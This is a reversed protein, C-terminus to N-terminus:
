QANGTLTIELEIDDSLFADKIFHAWAVDYKQRDFTLKGTAKVTVDANETIVIDKITEANTKGRITLDANATNGSAGTITLTATPHNAADFFDPTSLHGILHAKTGQESGEPAYNEDTPVITGMDVQFSGSKLMGGQTTFSGNKFAITGNHSYVKSGTVNGTWQVTSNAVDVAYTHEAAAAAALSDATAKEQAAKKEAESPGCAVLLLATSAAIILTNKM